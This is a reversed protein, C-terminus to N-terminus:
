PAAQLNLPEAKSEFSVKIQENNYSPVIMDGSCGINGVFTRCGNGKIVMENICIFACDSTGFSDDMIQILAKELSDKKTSDLRSLAILQGINIESNDIRVPTKLINILSISDQLNKSETYLAFTTKGITFKMILYFVILMLAFALISFFDTLGM